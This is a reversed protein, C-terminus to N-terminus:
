LELHLSNSLREWSEAAESGGVRGEPTLTGDQQYNTALWSDALSRHHPSWQAAPPFTIAKFTVSDIDIPDSPNLWPAAM